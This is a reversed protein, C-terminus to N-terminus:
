RSAASIRSALCSMWSEPTRAAAQARRGDPCGGSMQRLGDASVLPTKPGAPAPTRIGDTPDRDVEDEKVAWRWFHRVGSFWGRATSASRTDRIHVLWRRIHDRTVEEPDPDGDGALRAALSAMAQRYAAQTNPSYGDAQLSLEWSVVLRALSSNAM